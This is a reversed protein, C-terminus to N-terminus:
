RKRYKQLWDARITVAQVSSPRIGTDRQFEIEEELTMANASMREIGKGKSQVKNVQVTLTRLLAPVPEKWGRSARAIPYYDIFERVVDLPQVGNNSCVQEIAVITKAYNKNKYGELTLLPSFWEPTNSVKNSNSKKSNSNGNSNSNSNSNSTETVTEPVHPTVNNEGQPLSENGRSPTTTVIQEGQPLSDKGRIGLLTYRSPTRGTGTASVEIYGHEVLWDRARRITPRSLGTIKSINTLSPSSGTSAIMDLAAYTAIASPNQSSILEAPLMAFRSSIAQLTQKTDSVAISPM